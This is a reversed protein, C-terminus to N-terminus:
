VDQAKAFQWIEEMLELSADELAVGRTDLEREILAFRHRFKDHTKRLARVPDVQSLRAVMCVAFLLDGVESELDDRVGPKRELECHVEDVEERVKELADMATPWDFGVEAARQGLAVSEHLIDDSELALVDLFSSKKTTTMVKERGTRYEQLQCMLVGCLGKDHVTYTQLRLGRVDDFLISAAYPQLGNFHLGTGGMM